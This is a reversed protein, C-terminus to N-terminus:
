DIWFTPKINSNNNFSTCDGCPTPFLYLIAPIGVPFNIRSSGNVYVLQNARIEELIQYGECVPIDDLGCAFNYNFSRKISPKLPTEDSCDTYYPPLPESPFLKSYNFYIRKSSVSSVDFFGVVREKPDNISKLNGILFGPQTQSLISNGTESIQKLTRYYNRSDLNQVYQKLLITYRYSIIYNQNSIFRVPYDVRDESQGNTETLIINTSLDTKYCTKVETIRPTIIMEEPGTVVAKYPSWKPAIIKYTEEYEYRYYKSTNTADFSKASIQVGRVGDKTVVEPVVDQLLTATPTQEPTSEYSKGNSTTFHLQYSRGSIAQFPNVSKYTGANELFSYQNGLNDSVYVSAGTEITPVLSELRYTKTLKVEQIKLENTITAEVVFAEEYTNSEFNYKESCGLVIFVIIAFPILKNQIIKKM